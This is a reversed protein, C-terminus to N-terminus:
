MFVAVPWLSKLRFNTMEWGGGGVMRRWPVWRGKEIMEPKGKRHDLSKRLKNNEKV